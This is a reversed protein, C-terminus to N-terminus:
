LSSLCVRHPQEAHRVLCFLEEDTIFGDFGTSWEDRNELQVPRGEFWSMCKALPFVAKLFQAQSSMEIDVHRSGMRPTSSADYSRSLRAVADQAEQETLFEVFCDMTKGTSREM